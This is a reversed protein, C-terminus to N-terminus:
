QEVYDYRYGKHWEKLTLLRADNTFVCYCYANYLEFIMNKPPNKDIDYVMDDLSITMGDFCYPGTTLCYTGAFNFQVNHKKQFKNIYKAIKQGLMNQIKNIKM